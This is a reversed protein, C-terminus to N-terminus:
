VFMYHYDAYSLWEMEYTYNDKQNKHIYVDTRELDHEKLACLHVTWGHERYNLYLPTANLKIISHSHLRNISDLEIAFSLTSNTGFKEIYMQEIEAISTFDIANRKLTVFFYKM